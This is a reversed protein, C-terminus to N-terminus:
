GNHEEKEVPQPVGAFMQVLNEEGRTFGVKELIRAIGPHTYVAMTHYGHVGAVQKICAVCHKFAATAKKLTLGPRSVAHEALCMGCSNDMHLFLAAVPEGDLECVVGCKPLGHEARRRGDHEVWWDNLLDLDAPGYARMHFKMDSM